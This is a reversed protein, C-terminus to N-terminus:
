DRYIFKILSKNVEYIKLIDIKNNRLNEIYDNIETKNNSVLIGNVSELNDLYKLYTKTLKSKPLDELIYVYPKAHEICIFEFSSDLADFIFIDTDNVNNVNKLSKIIQQNYNKNHGRPHPRISMNKNKAIELLKNATNCKKLHDIFDKSIAHLIQFEPSRLAISLNKNNNNVLLKTRNIKKQYDRDIKSYNGGQLSEIEEWKSKKWTYNGGGHTVPVFEIDEFFYIKMWPSKLLENPTGIIKRIQFKKSEPEGFFFNPILQFIDQLYSNNKFSKKFVKINKHENKLVVNSLLHRSINFKIISIIKKLGSGHFSGHIKVENFNAFFRSLISSILFLVKEKSNVKITLDTKNESSQIILNLDVHNKDYSQLTKYFNTKTIKNIEQISSNKLLIELLLLYGLFANKLRKKILYKFNTKDLYDIYM